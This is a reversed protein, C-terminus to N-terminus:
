GEPIAAALSRYVRMLADDHHAQVAVGVLPQAVAFAQADVCAQAALLADARIKETDGFPINASTLIARVEDEGQPVCDKGASAMLEGLEVKIRAALDRNIAIARLYCAAAVKPRNLRWQMFALRYFCIALDNTSVATRIAGVLVESAEYLRSAEELCRVKTLAADCCIPALRVAEEAFPLAECPRELACLMRSARTNAAYYEDPVLCVRRLENANLQNYRVREAMSNFYRYVNDSDDLYTGTAMLPDLAERLSAVAADVEEYTVHDEDSAAAEEVAGTAEVVQSLDSGDVFLHALSHKDAADVNGNVLAESARECAAAVTVDRTKERTEVFQAVSQRTTIGLNPAMKNWAAIRVAKENIGLDRWTKAHCTERVAPPCPDSSMEPAGWREPPNVIQDDRQAFPTVPELWGTANDQFRVGLRRPPLSAQADAAEELLVDMGAHALDLSLLPYGTQAERGNVVVRTLGDTCAFAAKGALLCLRYAYARAEHLVDKEGGIGLIGLAAPRMVEVDIVAVHGEVDMQFDALIRTPAPTDELYRALNLRSAWEGEGSQPAGDRSPELSAVGVFLGVVDKASPSAAGLKGAPLDALLDCSVNLTTELAVMADYQDPTKEEHANVWWRGTRTLKIMNVRGLDCANLADSAELLPVLFDHYRGTAHGAYDKIAAISDRSGLVVGEFEKLGDILGQDVRQDPSPLPEQSTEPPKPGGDRSPQQSIGPRAPSEDDAPREDPKDKAGAPPQPKAESRSLFGRLLQALSPREGNQTKNPKAAM